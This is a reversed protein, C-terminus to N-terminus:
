DCKLEREQVTPLPKGLIFSIILDNLEKPSDVNAAHGSEKLIELKVKPGLMRQLQYAFHKPFVNDQEGWVLLTEQSLTSLPADGDGSMLNELLEEKQIRNKVEKTRIYEWLFLDPIRALDYKHVSSKVLLRLAEPDRPVFIDQAKKDVKKLQERRQDATSGVGSSVIVIKEVEDPYIEAMWYGVWGGYSISYVSCREVGFGRRLGQMMCKAQFSTTRDKCKTVSKGFFLLDPM